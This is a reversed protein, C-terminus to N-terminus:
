QLIDSDFLLGLRKNSNQIDITELAEFGIAELLETDVVCVFFELLLEVVMDELELLL